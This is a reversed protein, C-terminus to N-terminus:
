YSVVISSKSLSEIKPTHTEDAWIDANKNSLICRLYRPLESTNGSNIQKAIGLYVKDHAEQSLSDMKELNLRENDKM